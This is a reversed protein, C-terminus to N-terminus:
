PTGGALERSREAAATLARLVIGGLDAEVLSRLAAETTGGKSTVESRLRALDGGQATALAGSGALTAVALARAAGAELGLRVAAAAMLEALYFFYAPGSGSLATVVDLMDEEAVWVVTGVAQLVDAALIRAAAGVSAPAHLAAAGAGVLAPRNPMARVVPVGPGCADQLDRIRIGAAVSIVLPKSAALLPRLPAVAQRLVQPKLALVVIAATRVAAANSDTATVAFDRVLAARIVPDADGVAVQAAPMGRALWGGILARGMNGGGICAIRSRRVKEPLM